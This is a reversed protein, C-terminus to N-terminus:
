EGLGLKRFGVTGQTMPFKAKEQKASLGDPKSIFVEGDANFFGNPRSRGTATLVVLVSVIVVVKM